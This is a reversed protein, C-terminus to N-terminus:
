IQLNLLLTTASSSWPGATRFCTIKYTQICWPERSLFIPVSLMSTGSHCKVFIYRWFLSDQTSKSSITLTLQLTQWEWVGSWRNESQLSRLHVCGWQQCHSPHHPFVAPTPLWLQILNRRSGTPNESDLIQINHIFWTDSVSNLCSWSSGYRNRWSM